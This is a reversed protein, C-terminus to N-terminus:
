GLFYVFDYLLSLCLSFKKMLLYLQFHNVKRSYTKKNLPSSKKVEIEEDKDDMPEPKIKPEQKIEPEQKPKKPPPGRSLFAAMSGQPKKDQTKEISKTNKSPSTKTPSKKVKFFLLDHFM